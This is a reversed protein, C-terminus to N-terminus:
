YHVFENGRNLLKSVPCKFCNSKNTATGSRTNLPESIREASRCHRSAFNTAFTRRAVAPLWWFVRFPPHRRPYQAWVTRKAPRESYREICLWSKRRCAPNQGAWPLITQVLLTSKTNELEVTTENSCFICRPLSKWNCNENIDHFPPALLFWLTWKSTLVIVKGSIPFSDLYM